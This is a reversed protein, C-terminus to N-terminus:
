PNGRNRLMYGIALVGLPLLWWHSKISESNKLDDLNALLAVIAGAGAILLVGKTSAERHFYRRRHRRRESRPVAVLNRDVRVVKETAM